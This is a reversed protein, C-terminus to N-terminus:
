TVRNHCVQAMLGRVQAMLHHRGQNTPAEAKSGTGPQAPNQSVSGRGAVWM